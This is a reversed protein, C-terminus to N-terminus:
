DTLTATPCYNFQQFACIRNHCSNTLKGPDAAADAAASLTALDGGETEIEGAVEEEVEEGEEEQGEADHSEASVAPKVAPKAPQTPKQKKTAVATQTAAAAVSQLEMKATQM